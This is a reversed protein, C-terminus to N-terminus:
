RSLYNNIFGQNLEPSFYHKRKIWIFGDGKSIVAVDIPGGVTERDTSMKRKISTLNVLAEAMAALEEKPLSSVTRIVPSTFNENIIDDLKSKITDYLEKGYNHLQDKQDQSIEEHLIGEFGVTYENILANFALEIERNLKPDIGTIFSHVMEQQAFPVITASCDEGVKAEHMDRYKLVGNYIGEIEYSHLAPFIDDEGFGAIVVGTIDKGFEEKCCLSAAIYILKIAVEEDVDVNVNENIVEMIDEAYKNFFWDHFSSDFGKSYPLETFESFQSDVSNKLIEQVEENSPAKQPFAEFISNNTEELFELLFSTFKSIISNKELFDNRFRDDVTLYKLFDDCYNKLRSFKKDGLQKRYIKIITEWPTHMLGASGYIMIGVPHHKSLSFLKEATNFVKHNGVSVASDAALAVGITNLVGIEATM